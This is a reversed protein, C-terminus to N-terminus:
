FVVVQFKNAYEDVLLYIGPSLSDTEIANVNEFTRLVKSSIPDIVLIKKGPSVIELLEGRKVPNPYASLEVVGDFDVRLVETYSTRGDFDVQKLRYYNKGDAPKHDVYNYKITQRSNGAAALRAISTFGRGDMSKEIEFYDSNIESATTWKLRVGNSLKQTELSLLEVPLVNVRSYTGLSFPGYGTITNNSTITGSSVSGSYSSNGWDKWKGSIGDFGLVVLQSQDTVYNNGTPCEASVWSLTVQPTSSGVSHTLNWYECDSIVWLGVPWTSPGGFSQGMKFYEAIFEETVSPSSSFSISIPRYSNLSLGYNGVPFTFNDNGIKKVKGSIYTASSAGSITANDVITVMDSASATSIIGNILNLNHSITHNGSMNIGNKNDTELDYFTEGSASVSLTNLNNTCNKLQVKSTNAALIGSNNWNDFVTLSNSGAITLTAGSQVDIDYVGAASSLVPTKGTPITVKTYGSPRGNSWNSSNEWANSFTGTWTTTPSAAGGILNVTILNSDQSLNCGPINPKISCVVVSGASLNSNSYTAATGLPDPVGGVKWQYSPSAGAKTAVAKFVGTCGNSVVVDNLTANNTNFATNVVMPLFPTASTASTYFNNNGKYYRVVGNDIKISFADGANYPSVSGFNNSYTLVQAASYEVVYVNGSSLQISYQFYRDANSSHVIGLSSAALGFVLTTTNNPVTAKVYGNDYVQNLSTAGANWFGSGGQTKTLNNTSANTNVKDTFQVQEETLACAITAPTNYIYFTGGYNRATIDITPSTFTCGVLDPNITCQVQNGAALSTNIYTNGTGVPGGNLLWQYTPSAGTLSAIASFTGVSGNTIKINQITAGMDQFSIDVLMPLSPTYPSIYVLVNNQYYKVVKDEIAIKFVDNSFYNNPSPTFAPTSSSASEYIEYHGDGRLFIGYQISSINLNADTFSLGFARTKTNEAITTEVYSNDMVKVVSSAGADWSGGTAGYNKTISNGSVSVNTKNFKLVQETAALCAQDAGSNSIYYDGILSPSQIQFNVTNSNVASASCGGTGPTIKCYLSNGTTISTNSYTNSTAGSVPSGNLYWQYSPGSGLDAVPASATFTGDSGNAVQVSRLNSGISNLSIDVILPLTPAVASVWQLNGDYYYKVVNNEVAIKLIKGNGAVGPNFNARITGLEVIDISGDARTRFCYKITADTAGGDSTSLGFAWSATTINSITNTAWGNNKVTNVSVAGANFGSTGSTKDINNSSATLGASLGTKSWVVDEIAYLCHDNSNSHVVTFQCQGLAHCLAICSIFGYALLYKLTLASKRKLSVFAQSDFLPSTLELFCKKM